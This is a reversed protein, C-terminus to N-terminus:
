GKWFGQKKRKIRLLWGVANDMKLRVLIVGIKRHVQGCISRSPQQSSPHIIVANEKKKRPPSPFLATKWPRDAPEWEMQSSLWRKLYRQKLCIKYFNILQNLAMLYIHLAISPFYIHISLFFLIRLVLCLTTEKHFYVSTNRIFSLLLNIEWFVYIFCLM